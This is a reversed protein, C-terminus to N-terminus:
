LKKCISLEQIARGVARMPVNSNRTWVRAVGGDRVPQVTQIRRTRRTEMEMEPKTLAITRPPGAEGAGGRGMM